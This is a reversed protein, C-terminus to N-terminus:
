RAGSPSSTLVPLAVLEGVIWQLLSSARYDHPEDATPRKRSQATPSATCCCRVHLAALIGRCCRRRRATSEWRWSLVVVMALHVAYGHVNVGDVRNRRREKGCRCRPQARQIACRWTSLPRAPLELLLAALLGRRRSARWNMQRELLAVEAGRNAGQVADRSAGGADGCRARVAPDWTQKCCVRELACVALLLRQWRACWRMKARTASNRCRQRTKWTAMAEISQANPPVSDHKQHAKRM